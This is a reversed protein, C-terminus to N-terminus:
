NAPDADRRQQDLERGRLECGLSFADVSEACTADLGFYRKWVGREPSLLAAYFLRATAPQYEDSAPSISELALAFLGVRRKRQSGASFELWTRQWIASRIRQLPLRVMGM